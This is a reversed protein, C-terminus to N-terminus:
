PLWLNLFKYYAIPNLRKNQFNCKQIFSSLSQLAWIDATPFLEFFYCCSTVCVSVCSEGDHEVDADVGICAGRSGSGEGSVLSLPHSYHRRRSRWGGGPDM